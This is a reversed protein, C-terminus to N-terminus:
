PPEEWFLFVALIVLNILLGDAGQDDLTHLKVDRFLTSIMGSFVAAGVAGLCCWERKILEM